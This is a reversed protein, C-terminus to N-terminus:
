QTPATGRLFVAQWPRYNSVFNKEFITEGNRDVKYNFTVKAGWAKYDIQKVQGLPLTPDDVYLDEPPPVISTTVPKTTSSVRGDPTGYIEFVLTKTKANFETQILIHGPTDNKFKLDTTPDFVTADLGPPSDQEYYGVRYSHARREVIPLGANLLARFLTSSVQCVGGGDGLVTRGDKIVYAQKYGTFISVDGLVQNFSLVTETPVLSGNFKSSALSINHIRGPISGAFKSSGRGLLQRIGLNNVKDTTVEPSSRQVPIQINAIKEDSTELLNLNEIIKETLLVVSVVIGDKAPKFEVVKGEEFMFVANQPERNVKPIIEKEIFDAVEQADYSDKPNILPFIESEKYIFSDFEHSLSLSKGVLSGAKTKTNEAEEDSLTPDIKEFPITTISFDVNALKERLIKTLVKQDIKEGPKGINVIVKGEEFTVEPYIPEIVTQDSVVNLYEELKEENLSFVLSLQTTTFSSLIRNFIDTSLNGSRGISYAAETTKEFKYFFEIEKLSLDFIRDKASLTIKEPIDLKSSLSEQSQSPTLGGVNINTINVNPFIKKSFYFDFVLFSVFPVLLLLIPLFLFKNRPLKGSFKM